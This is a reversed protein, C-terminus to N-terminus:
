GAAQATGSARRGILGALRAILSKGQRAARLGHGLRSSRIQQAMEQRHLRSAEFDALNHM